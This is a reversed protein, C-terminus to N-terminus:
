LSTLAHVAEAQGSVSIVLHQLPLRPDPHSDRSLDRCTAEQLRVFGIQGPTGAIARIELTKGTLRARVEDALSFVARKDSQRSFCHVDLLLSLRDGTRNRHM